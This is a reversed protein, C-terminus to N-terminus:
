TLQLGQLGEPDLLLLSKSGYLTVALDLDLPDKFTFLIKPTHGKM